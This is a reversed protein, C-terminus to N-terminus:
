QSQASRTCRRNIASDKTARTRVTNRKPFLQFHTVRGGHSSAGCDLRVVAVLLPAGRHDRDCSHHQERRNAVAGPVQQEGASVFAGVVRIHLGVNHLDRRLDAARHQRDVGVVGVKNGGALREHFEIGGVRAHGNFLGFRLERLGYAFHASQIGVERRQPRLDRLPFRVKGTRAAIKRARLIVDGTAFRQERGAGDAAFFYIVRDRLARGGVTGDGGRFRSQKGRAFLQHGTESQGVACRDVM